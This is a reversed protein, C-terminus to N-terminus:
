VIIMLNLMSFYVAVKKKEFFRSNIQMVVRLLGKNRNTGIDTSLKM